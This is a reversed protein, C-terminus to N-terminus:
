TMRLLPPMFMLAKQGADEEELILSPPEAPCLEILHTVPGLFLYFFNIDM